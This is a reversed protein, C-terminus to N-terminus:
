GTSGPQSAPSRAAGSLEGGGLMVSTPASPRPLSAPPRGREITGKPVARGGVQMKHFRGCCLKVNPLRMTYGPYMPLVKTRCCPHCM